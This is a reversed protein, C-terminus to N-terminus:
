SFNCGRRSALYTSKLTEGYTALNAIFFSFLPENLLNKDARSSAPSINKSQSEQYPIVRYLSNEFM